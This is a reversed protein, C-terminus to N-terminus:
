NLVRSHYLTWKSVKHEKLVQRDRETLKHPRGSRLQAMTAGLHKWKVIVASVTLWLLELQASIKRVSSSAMNFTVSSKLLAM